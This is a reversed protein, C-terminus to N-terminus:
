CSATKGHAPKKGQIERTARGGTGREATQDVAPSKETNRVKEQKRARAASQQGRGAKQDVLPPKETNPVKEQKRRARHSSIASQRTSRAAKQDVVTSDETNSLNEPGRMPEPDYEELPLSPAPQAPAAIFDGHRAASRARPEQLRVEEFQPAHDASMPDSRELGCKVARLSPALVLIPWGQPSPRLSARHRVLLPQFLLPVSSLWEDSGSGCAKSASKGARRTATSM